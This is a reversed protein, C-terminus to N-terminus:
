SRRPRCRLNPTINTPRQSLRPRESDLALIPVWLNLAQPLRSTGPLLLLAGGRHCGADMSIVVLYQQLNISRLTLRAPLAGFQTTLLKPATLDQTNIPPPRCSPQSSGPGFRSCAVILIFISISPWTLWFLTGLWLLTPQRPNQHLQPTKNM